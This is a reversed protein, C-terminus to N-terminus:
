VEEEKLNDLHDAIARLERSSYRDGKPTIFVWFDGRSDLYGSFSGSSDLLVKEHSPVIKYHEVDKVM